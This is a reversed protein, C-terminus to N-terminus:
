IMYYMNFHLHIKTTYKKMSCKYHYLISLSAIKEM